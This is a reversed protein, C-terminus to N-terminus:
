NIRESTEYKNQQILQDGSAKFNRDTTEYEKKVEKDEINKKFKSIDIGDNVKLMELRDVNTETNGNVDMRIINVLVREIKLISVSKEKSSLILEINETLEVTILKGGDKENKITTQIQRDITFHHKELDNNNQLPQLEENSKDISYTENRQIRNAERRIEPEIQVSKKTSANDLRDQPSYSKVQVVKGNKDLYHEETELIKTKKVIRETVPQKIPDVWYSDLKEKNENYIEKSLREKNVLSMNSLSPINDIM